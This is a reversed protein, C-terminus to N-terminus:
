VQCAFFTQIWECATKCAFANPLLDRRAENAPWWSLWELSLNKEWKTKSGLSAEAQALLLSVFPLHVSSDQARRLSRVASSLYQQHHHRALEMCIVGHCLFLCSEAVALSCAESIFEEAHLFDQAWASILGRFLNYMAMWMNWSGESEMLSERFGLDSSNLDFHLNYRSEILKLSMWGIPYDTQLQLCKVYEEELNVYNKNAAHARCLQLHAFFIYSDPLLIQSADKACSVCSIIDQCQLNIESACLLLQFKRYRHYTSEELYIQGSLSSFIMRKLVILLHQPYRAERAQQLLNLILLYRANQNWPEQHLWRQMQQVAAAGRKGHSKCTPFCFNLNCSGTAHCAVVEAGFIEPGSRLGEENSHGPTTTHCRNAVHVSNWQGGSLLFYGLLNRILTSNPYMHLAKRLHCAGSQMEIATGSGHKVLKSLAILVHMETIEEQSSLLYRSSSVVSELHNSPVLAHVASVVFSVKSSQLLEKPMKLISNIASEMGSIHYLLNCILSISSAVSSHGMTSVLAALERAASLALENKGLQWLSLAYIQLGEVDLLGESKLGELEQVADLANGAKSLVRALNMSVDTLHSKPISCTSTRMVLRALRYSAIATPYDFRAESVLGNLNHAEPYYPARRVAQWIAGYVQSSSLYGLVAALKTLGIQFEALPMIQVARLCSEYAEDSVAERAHLDASMGAWPLALSPDISRAKDFAQRALQKENLERYLKGLYAWAVALSVDLQLGRIFAHQKLANHGSLCGLAVWFEMNDGELLLSGISMKEPLQWANLDSKSSEKLSFIMDVAIAVDTYANALWPALHMARQYSTNACEAALYCTRKWNFLLTTFIDEDDEPIRGEEMWPFCKAYMLLIDGHLKWICSINGASITCAKVIESAEQLLSAAWAFAGTNICEKSMSLLGSALGYQAALNQPYIELAQRFHELGKRFSGLMLHINGSEVMAFVRSDELEMARGYSKIAATYMGLRQYALGLAEWLDASTPFGRIAHQLHQVAESWKKQNVLLYGLRRFAWFARSSKSSAEQCVAVELSEKGEKDLLDCLSEGSHSDEPNLSLARQYCKLARQTEVTSYYDGLYRFAEGNQPNLKAALVFHEAAKERLETGRGLLFLGLNIHHSPDDPESEVSEQLRRLLVEDDEEAHKM